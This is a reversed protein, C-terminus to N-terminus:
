DHKKELKQGKKRAINKNFYLENESVKELVAIFLKLITTKGAGNESVFINIDNKFDFCYNNSNEFLDCIEFKTIESTNKHNKKKLFLKNLRNQIDDETLTMNKQFIVDWFQSQTLGLSNALIRLQDDKM